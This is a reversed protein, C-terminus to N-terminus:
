KYWAKLQVLYYYCCRLFLIIKLTNKLSNKMAEYYFLNKLIIKLVKWEYKM